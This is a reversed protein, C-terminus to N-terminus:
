FAAQQAELQTAEDEGAVDMTDLDSSAADLDQTSDITPVAPQSDQNMDQSSEATASNKTAVNYFAFGLGAVLSLGIFIIAGEVITFGRNSRIANM